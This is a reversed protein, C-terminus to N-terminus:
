CAKLHSVFEFACIVGHCGARKRFNLTYRLILRSPACLFRTGTIQYTQFYLFYIPEAYKDVNSDNGQNSLKPVQVERKADWDILRLFM